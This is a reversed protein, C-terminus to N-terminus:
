NVFPIFEKVLLVGGLLTMFAFIRVIWVMFEPLGWESNGTVVRLYWNGFDRFNSDELGFVESAVTVVVTGTEYIAKTINNDDSDLTTIFVTLSNEVLTYRTWNFKRNFNNVVTDNTLDKSPIFAPAGEPTLSMEIPWVWTGLIKEIVSQQQNAFYPTGLLRDKWQVRMTANKVTYEQAAGGFTVNHVEADGLKIGANELQTVNLTFDYQNPNEGFTTFTYAFMPFLISIVFSFIVLRQTSSDM